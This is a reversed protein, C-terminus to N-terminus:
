EIYDIQKTEPDLHIKKSNIVKNFIINGVGIAAPINLEACRISMHSNVGGYETVLGVINYKFIFDYGPDASSICVIKNDIKIDKTKNNLSVIESVVKRSGFFNPTDMEQNFYYIDEPNVIM